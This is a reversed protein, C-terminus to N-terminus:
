TRRRLHAALFRQPTAVILRPFLPSMHRVNWTVIVPIRHVVAVQGILADYLRSGVGGNAAYRRITDFTQSPTLGVLSAVARLSELASGAEEATFRFPAGARTLTAYAEALSHAAIAFSGPELETVVALSSVHHEHAEAVCAIVVNSDLLAALSNL